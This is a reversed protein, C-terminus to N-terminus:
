QGVHRPRTTRPSAVASLPVPRGRTAPLLCVFSRNSLCAPRNSDHPRARVSPPGLVRVGGEGCFGFFPNMSLLFPLSLFLFGFRRMQVEPVLSCCTELCGPFYTREWLPPFAFLSFVCFDSHRINHCLFVECNNSFYELSEM